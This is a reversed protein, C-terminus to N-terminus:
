KSPWGAGPAPAEAVVVQGTQQGVSGTAPDFAAALMFLNRGNEGGLACSFCGRDLEITHLVEGGERVRVCRKTGVDAYWVAGDTDLCIGDPHDHETKAWVRRNSLSGGPAIDFATLQNAYSEAVILTANDSTVAMGNPFALGGAVQRVSGDPPVVAIIGPAFPGAPFDFNICNLYINGRGDVVIENWPSRSLDSLDAHLALSGDLERRLLRAEGGSVILLRGDPLWDICFPYSPVRTIVNSTGDPNIAIVERASWDSFWLRGDHWCPSEVLGLGTLLTRLEAMSLEKFRREGEVRVADAPNSLYLWLSAFSRGFRLWGPSGSM